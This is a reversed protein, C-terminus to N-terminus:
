FSISSSYYGEGKFYDVRVELEEETNFHELIPQGTSVRLGPSIEGYHYINSGTNYALWWISNETTNILDM